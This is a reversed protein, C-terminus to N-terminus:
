RTITFVNFVMGVSNAFAIFLWSVGGYAAFMFLCFTLLATHFTLLAAPVLRAVHLIESFSCSNLQRRSAPARRVPIGAPPVCGPHHLADASPLRLHDGCAL